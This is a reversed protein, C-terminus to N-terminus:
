NYSNAKHKPLFLFDDPVPGLLMESIKIWDECKNSSMLTELDNRGFYFPPRENIKQPLRELLGVPIYRYLFSLWELLFRRTKNVGQTDSGWHELGYNSFNRLLDLRESASIDWHRQEKIETFIWPKILAGRAIMLGASGSYKFHQNADEFSLIDWERLPSWFTVFVVKHYVLDIPCGVNVDIFDIDLRSSLLEACKTMTDPFGGCLQVGFVDETHHRRLLAWECSQGMLLNTCMAMEGCTIDAGYGKCIRRFPLNGVTTLPALLLKGKVDLTKKKERLSSGTMCDMDTAMAVDTVSSKDSYVHSVVIGDQKVADSLPGTKGDMGPKLCSPPSIVEVNGLYPEEKKEHSLNSETSKKGSGLEILDSRQKVPNQQHGGVSSEKSGNLDPKVRTRQEDTEGLQECIGSTDAETAATATLRSKDSSSNGDKLDKPISSQEVASQLMEGETGQLSEETCRVSTPKDAVKTSVTSTNVNPEATPGALSSSNGKMAKKKGKGDRPLTKLYMDAKPYNIKKKRLERRLEMSLTNSTLTSPNIKRAEDTINEFDSSIHSTGYRCMLGFECHGFMDFNYCKPGIDAPKQKLMNELDHNFKCQEGYPCEKGKAMNLCLKEKPLLRVPKPRSKNQGSRKPKKAPPEEGDDGPSSTGNKGRDSFLQNFKQFDIFWLATVSEIKTQIM